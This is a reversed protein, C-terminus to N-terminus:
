SSCGGVSEVGVEKLDMETSSPISCPRRYELHLGHGEFCLINAPVEGGHLQTGDLSFAQCLGYSDKWDLKFLEGPPGRKKKEKKIIKKKLQLLGVNCFYCHSYMCKCLPNRHLQTGMPSTQMLANWTQVTPLQETHTPSFLFAPHPHAEVHQPGPFILVLIGPNSSVQQWANKSDSFSWTNDWNDGSRIAQCFELNRFLVLLRAPNTGPFRISETSM